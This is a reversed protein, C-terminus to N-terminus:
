GLLSLLVTGKNCTWGTSTQQTKCAVVTEVGDIQCVLALAVAYADVGAARAHLMPWTWPLRLEILKPQEGEGQQHEVGQDEEGGQRPVHVDVVVSSASASATVDGTRTDLPPLAAASWVVARCRPAGPAVVFLLALEGRAWASHLYEAARLTHGVGPFVLRGAVRWHDPLRRLPHAADAAGEQAQWARESREHAALGATGIDALADSLLQVPRSVTSFRTEGQVDGSICEWLRPHAERHARLAAAAAAGLRARATSDRALALVEVATAGVDIRGEDDVWLLRGTTNSLLEHIGGVNAALVTCGAAMADYIVAPIGEYRSPLLVLDARRYLQAMTSRPVAGLVRLCSQSPAAAAAEVVGRLPGDGAVIVFVDKAARCVHATVELLASIGKQRVLRGAFLVVVSKDLPPLLVGPEEDVRYGHEEVEDGDDGGASGATDIYCTVTSAKSVGHDHLWDGLGAYATAHRANSGAPAFLPHALVALRPHGGGHWTPEVVHTLDVLRAGAALWRRLAGGVTYGWEAHSVIVAQPRRRCLLTRVYALYMEPSGLRALHHIDGDTEAAFADHWAQASPQTTVVTVAVGAAEAQRVLQLAAEDAGGMELWPALLVARRAAFLTSATRSSPPCLPLASSSGTGPRKAHPHGPNSRKSAPMAALIVSPVSALPATAPTAALQEAADLWQLGELM